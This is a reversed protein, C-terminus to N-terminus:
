NLTKFVEELKHIAQQAKESLQSSEKNVYLEIHSRMVDESMEQAHGTIFPSLTPYKKWSIELSEQLATEFMSQYSSYLDNRMIICGLPIPLHHTQEWWDGMDQILKLGKEKYTFRGEHILLGLDVEGDLVSREIDSFIIDVKNKAQPFASSLLLHATTYRGPIAIRAHQIKDLLEEESTWNFDDRCVLLPGVGHGLAAGTKLLTYHDKVQLYTAFSVKLIDFKHEFAWQNLQEVDQLELDFEYDPNHNIIHDFIFTDNPCPSIALSFKM